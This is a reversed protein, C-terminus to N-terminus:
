NVVQVFYNFVFTCIIFSYLAIKIPNVDSKGSHLERKKISKIGAIRASCKIDKNNMNTVLVKINMFDGSNLLTKELYLINDENKLLTGLDTPNQEGINTQLIRTENPFIFSIDTDFDDRKIEVKGTNSLQIIVMKLQKDIKVGKFFIELNEEEGKLVSVVSENAIVSYTLEKKKRQLYYATIAIIISVILSLPGWWASSLWSPENMIIFEEKVFILM